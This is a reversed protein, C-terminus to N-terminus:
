EMAFVELATKGLIMQANELTTADFV